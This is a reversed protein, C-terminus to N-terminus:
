SSELLSRECLENKGATRSGASAPAGVMRPAGGVSRSSGNFGFRSGAPASTYGGLPRVGTDAAWVSPVLNAQRWSILNELGAPRRRGYKPCAQLLREM